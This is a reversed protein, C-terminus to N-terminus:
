ILGETDRQLRRAGLYVLATLGLVLGLLLVSEDVGFADYYPLEVWVPGTTPYGMETLALEDARHRLGPAFWATAITLASVILLGVAASPAFTRGTWLRRCLLLVAVAGAVFTTSTLGIAVAQLTRPVALALQSTLLVSWHYSTTMETDGSLNAPMGDPSLILAEIEYAGEFMYVVRVLDNILMSLTFLATVAVVILILARGTVRSAVKPAATNM